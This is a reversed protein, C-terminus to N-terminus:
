IFRLTRVTSMLWEDLSKLTTIEYLYGKSIVWIERTEGLSDNRSYFAAAPAADITINTLNTRIGSPEDQKFREESIQSETYPAIYIQFGEGKEPSQFTITLAGDSEPYENRSLYEPYSLAFHYATNTYTAYGAPLTSSAIPTLATSSSNNFLALSPTPPPTNPSPKALLLAGVFLLLGLLIGFFRYM